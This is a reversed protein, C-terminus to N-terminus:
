RTIIHVLCAVTFLALCTTCGQMINQFLVNENELMLWKSHFAHVEGSLALCIRNIAISNGFNSICFLNSM